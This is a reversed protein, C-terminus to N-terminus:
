DEHNTQGIYRAGQMHFIVFPPENEWSVVLDRLEGPKGQELDEIRKELQKM